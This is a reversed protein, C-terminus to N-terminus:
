RGMELQLSKLALSVGEVQKIDLWIAKLFVVFHKM